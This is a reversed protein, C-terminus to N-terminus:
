DTQLRPCSPIDSLRPPLLHYSLPSSIRLLSIPCFELQFSIPIPFLEVNHAALRPAAPRRLQRIADGKLANLTAFIRLLKSFEENLQNPPRGLEGIRLSECEMEKVVLRRELRRLELKKGEEKRWKKIQGKRESGEADISVAESVRLV